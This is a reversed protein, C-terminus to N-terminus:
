VCGILRDIPMQLVKVDDVVNLSRRARRKMRSLDVLDSVVNVVKGGSSRGDKIVDLDTM